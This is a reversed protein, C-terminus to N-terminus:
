SVKRGRLQRRFYGSAGAGAGCMDLTIGADQIRKLGARSIAQRISEESAPQSYFIAMIASDTLFCMPPIERSPSTTWFELCARMYLPLPDLEAWRRGYKSTTSAKYIRIRDAEKTAPDMGVWELIEKAPLGNQAAIAKMKEERTWPRFDTPAASARCCMARFAILQSTAAKVAELPGAGCREVNTALRAIVAANDALFQERDITEIAPIIWGKGLIFFLSETIPKM